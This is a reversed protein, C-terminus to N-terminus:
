GSARPKEPGDALRYPVLHVGAPTFPIPLKKSYDSLSPKTKTHERKKGFYYTM